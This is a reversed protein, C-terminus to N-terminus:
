QCGSSKNSEATMQPQTNTEHLNIFKELLHAGVEHVGSLPRQELLDLVLFSLYARENVVDDKM